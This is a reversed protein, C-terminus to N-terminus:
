LPPLESSPRETLNTGWGGNKLTTGAASGTRKLTGGSQYLYFKCKNWAGCYYNYNWIIVTGYLGAYFNKTSSNGANLATKGKAGINEITLKCGGYVDMNVNGGYETIGDGGNSRVNMVGGSSIIFKHACVATTGSSTCFVNLTGGSVNCRTSNNDGTVRLYGNITTTGGLVQFPGNTFYAYGNVTVNGYSNMRYGNVAGNVKLTTGAGVSLLGSYTLGGALTLSANNSLTVNPVTMVSTRSSTVTGGSVTLATLTANVGSIDVTGGKITLTSASTGGLVKLTANYSTLDKMAASSFNVTYDGDAFTVTVTENDKNANEASTATYIKDGIKVCSDVEVQTMVAGYYTYVDYIVPSIEGASVDLTSYVEYNNTTYDETSIQPLEKEEYLSDSFDFGKTDRITVSGANDFSPADYSVQSYAVAAYANKYM